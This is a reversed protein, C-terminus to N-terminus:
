DDLPARRGIPRDRLAAALPRDAPPMVAPDIADPPTWRIEQGEQPSPIGDWRRCAFLLLTLDVAADRDASLSTSFAFPELCTPCPEVLLEERLERLLAAEPTEGPEVKGGPFEWLGGHAKGEPRRALLIRGDADALAAAAVLLPRRADEGALSSRPTNVGPERAGSM